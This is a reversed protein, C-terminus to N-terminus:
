YKRSSSQWLFKRTFFPERVEYFWEQQQTIISHCNAEFYATKHTKLKYWTVYLCLQPLTTFKTVERYLIGTEVSVFLTCFIWWSFWSIHSTYDLICHCTNKAWRMYEIRCESTEALSACHRDRCSKEVVVYVKYFRVASSYLRKKQSRTIISYAASPTFQLEISTKLREM